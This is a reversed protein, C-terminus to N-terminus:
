PSVVPEVVTSPDGDVALVLQPVLQELLYPLSLVTIFSFATGLDDGMQSAYIARGETAVPLNTYVELGLVGEGPTGWAWGLLDADVLHIQELSVQTSFEDGLVEAVTDPQVFGLDLLFRSRPDEAGYLWISDEAAFAVVGTAGVFEPHDVQAQAFRADIDAILAEAEAPRGLARGVTRTLEQWPIGYDVYEAPQAVTPAIQTLLEYQEQTLGSYLALILDPQLAAIAEFNPAASDGVVAPLAAGQLFPEAWPGIESPFAGIWETVGVPVIGLALVADHDTLGVTVVRGAPGAIETSGYKHDITVPFAATQSGTAVSAAADPVLAHLVIDVLVEASLPGGFLWTGGGLAYAHGKKVFELSEWLPRVAESAFINDDDQVVYFFHLDGLEPLTEMSVTSFGFEQWGSNWGLELGIQEIIKIALANEVFLRATATNDATFGQTLIFKEGLKDNAELLARAEAFKAELQAIVAESEAQRGVVEAILHFNEIMSEYQNSTQDAPYHDFVLTPAIASLAAYKTEDVRNLPALILDPQLAALTELNPDNRTGVDVVDPGLALPIKVWNNYGGIDAMGVPQLGLALLDEAYIWELAVVRQPTGLIETEGLAHQVTQTKDSAVAEPAAPATPAACATLFVLLLITIGVQQFFQRM